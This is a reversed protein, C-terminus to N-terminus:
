STYISKEVEISVDNFLGQKRQENAFELLDPKNHSQRSIDKNIFPSM